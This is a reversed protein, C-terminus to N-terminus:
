DADGESTYFAQFGTFRGENSYDSRFVVSLLNGASLIVMNRPASEYNKEEEGCFRLTDNGEALVQPQCPLLLNLLCAVSECRGYLLNPWCTGPHLWIWVPKLTGFQLPQLLTQGQPGRPCQHEVRHAPQWPIAPPLQRLHLQWVARDNWCEALCPPPLGPCICSVWQAFNSKIATTEVIIKCLYISLSVWRTM